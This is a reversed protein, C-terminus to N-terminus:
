KESLPFTLSASALRNSLKQDNWGQGDDSRRMWAGAVYRVDMAMGEADHEQVFKYPVFKFLKLQGSPHPCSTRIVRPNRTIRCVRSIAGANRPYLGDMAM